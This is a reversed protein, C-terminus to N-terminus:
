RSRRGTGRRRASAIFPACCRPSMHGPAAVPGSPDSAFTLLSGTRAPWVRTPLGFEGMAVWIGHRGPMMRRFERAAAVFRVTDRVSQPMVALKPIEQSEAALRAMLSALDNPTTRVEHHSRIVLGGDHLVTAALRDWDALGSRDLEIDIYDPRVASVLRTMLHLRQAEDGEWLGLESNRRVTIIGPLKGHRQEEAWWEALDDVGREAPKLMDIRLEVLDVWRRNRAIMESWHARTSGTLALCIM